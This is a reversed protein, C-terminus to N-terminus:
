NNYYNTTSGNGSTWIGSTGNGQSTATSNAYQDVSNGDGVISMETVTQSGITTSSNMNEINTDGYNNTISTTHWQGYYGGRERKIMDARNLNVQDQNADNFRTHGSWDVGPNGWDGAVASVTGLLMVGLVCLTRHM